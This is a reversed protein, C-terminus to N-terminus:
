DRTESNGYQGDGLASHGGGGPSLSNNEDKGPIRLGGEYFIARHARRVIM